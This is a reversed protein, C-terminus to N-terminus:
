SIFKHADGWNYWLISDSIDRRYLSFNLSSFNVLSAVRICISHGPLYRFVSADAPEFM